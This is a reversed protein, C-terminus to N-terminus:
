EIVAKKADFAQTRKPTLAGSAVECVAMTEPVQQFASFTPQSAFVLKSTALLAKQKKGDDSDSYVVGVRAGPKGVNLVKMRVGGEFKTVEVKVSGAKPNGFGPQVTCDLMVGWQTGGKVGLCSESDVLGDAAWLEVHDALTWKTSTEVLTDDRLELYLEPAGSTPFHAVVLLSADDRGSQKGFTVFSAAASCGGLATTKWGGNRFDAPLQVAPILNARVETATSEPNAVGEGDCKAVDDRTTGKFDEWSWDSDRMFDPMTAHFSSHKERTVRLPSLALEKESTWRWASGGYRSHKFTSPTVDITDEGVGSAGYGNNCVELLLQPAGTTPVWWWEEPPERCADVDDSKSPPLSVKWVAGASSGKDKSATCKRAKCDFDPTAGSVLLTVAAAMLM